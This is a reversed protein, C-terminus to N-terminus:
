AGGVAVFGAGFLYAGFPTPRRVASEWVRSGAAVLSGILPLRETQRALRLVAIAALLAGAVGQVWRFHPAVLIQVEMGLVAVVVGLLMVVSVAGLAAALSLQTRRTASADGAGVALFGPLVPLGCPNFTAAVGGVVAVLPLSLAGLRGVAYLGNVFFLLGVLGGGAIALFAATSALTGWSRSPAARM